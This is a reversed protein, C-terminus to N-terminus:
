GVRRSTRQRPRTRLASHIFDEKLNKLRCRCYFLSLTTLEHFCFLLSAVRTCYTQCYKYYLEVTRNIDYKYRHLSPAERKDHTSSNTHKQLFFNVVRIKKEEEIFSPSTSVRAIDYLYLIM